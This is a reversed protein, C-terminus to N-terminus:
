FPFLTANFVKIPPCYTKVESGGPKPLLKALRWPTYWMKGIPLRLSHSFSRYCIHDTWKFRFWCSAGGVLNQREKCDSQTPLLYITKFDFRKSYFPQLFVHLVSNWSRRRNVSTLLSCCKLGEWSEMRWWGEGDELEMFRRRGEPRVDLCWQDCRVGPFVCSFVQVKEKTKKGKWHGGVVVVGFSNQTCSLPSVSLAAARMLPLQIPTSFHAWEAPSRPAAHTKERWREIPLPVWAQQSVRSCCGSSAWVVLPLSTKNTMDAGVHIKRKKKKEKKFCRELLCSCCTPYFSRLLLVVLCMCMGLCM